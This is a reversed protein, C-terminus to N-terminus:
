MSGAAFTATEVEITIKYEIAKVLEKIQWSINALRYAKNAFTLDWVGSTNKEIVNILKDFLYLSGLTGTTNYLRNTESSLANDLLTVIISMKATQGDKRYIDVINGNELSINITPLGTMGRAEDDRGVFLNKVATLTGSTKATNIRNYIENLLTVQATM